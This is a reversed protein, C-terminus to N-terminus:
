DGEWFRKRLMEPHELVEQKVQADFLDLFLEKDGQAIEDVLRMQELVWEHYANPHRGQHPMPSKNWVDDLDLGYKQAIEVMRDTWKQSKNTAFHHIQEPLEELAEKGGRKAGEEVVEKAAKEIGEEIGEKAGLRIFDDIPLPTAFLEDPEIMELAITLAIVQNAAEVEEPTSNENEIVRIAQYIDWADWGYDIAALVVIWWVRGTPDTYKLPNNGVYSYRNLAQPNLPTPVITDASVFRGLRPSYFRAGYHMLGIGAENRQGTFTYDTPLTSADGLRVGGYPLYAVRSDTVPQGNGDSLISTSGLHDSHLYYVVGEKQM